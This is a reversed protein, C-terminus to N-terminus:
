SNEEQKSPGYKIKNKNKQYLDISTTLETTNCLHNAWNVEILIHIEPLLIFPTSAERNLPVDDFIDWVGIKSV